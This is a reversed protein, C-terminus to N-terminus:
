KLGNHKAYKQGQITVVTSFNLIISVTSIKLPRALIQTVTFVGFAESIRANITLTTGDDVSRDGFKKEIESKGFL